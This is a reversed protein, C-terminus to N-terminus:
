QESYCIRRDRTVGQRILNSSDVHVSQYCYPLQAEDEEEAYLDLLSLNIFDWFLGKLPM